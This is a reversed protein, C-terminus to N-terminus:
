KFQNQLPSRFNRWFARKRGIFCFTGSLTNLFGVKGDETSILANSDYRSLNENM